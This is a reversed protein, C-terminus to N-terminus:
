RRLILGRIAADGARKQIRAASADRFYDDGRLQFAVWGGFKPFGGRRGIACVTQGNRGAAIVDRKLARWEDGAIEYDFHGCSLLTRKIGSQSELAKRGADDDGSLGFRNEGVLGGSWDRTDGFIM